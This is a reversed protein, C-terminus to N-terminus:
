NDSLSTSLSDVAAVAGARIEALALWDSMEARVVEPLAAIEALTDALRGERVAAEARSLVADASTGAQPTVSRVDFQNRLFAGFGSTEEGAVGERRATALASRAVDPFQEQLSALTPVGDQAARLADPVPEGLANELDGLAAGLSAGSEMGTQLRALAARGAAARAAAAANEEIAAAEARATDLEAQAIGTMENIQARLEAIEAEYAALAPVSATGEGRPLDELASLRDDLTAVQDILETVSASMRSQSAEIDSLDVTPPTEIQAQLASLMDAQAAVQSQLESQSQSMQVQAIVFGSAGAVLGGLLLPIFGSRQKAPASSVAPTAAPQTKDQPTESKPKEIKPVSASAEHEPKAKKVHVEAPIADVLPKKTSDSESSSQRKQVPKKTQSPAKRGKAPQKAVNEGKKRGFRGSLLHRMM